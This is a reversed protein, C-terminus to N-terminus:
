LAIFIVISLIICGNQDFALLLDRQTVFPIASGTRIILEAGSCLFMTAYPLNM